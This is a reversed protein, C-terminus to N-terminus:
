KHFLIIIDNRTDTLVKWAQRTFTFISVCVELTYGEEDPFKRSLINFVKILDNLTKISDPLTAFFLKGNFHIEIKYSM